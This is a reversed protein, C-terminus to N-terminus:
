TLRRGNTRSNRSSVALCKSSTIKVADSALTSLQDFLLLICVLHDVEQVWVFSQDFTSQVATGTEESAAAIGFVQVDEAAFKVLGQDDVIGDAGERIM